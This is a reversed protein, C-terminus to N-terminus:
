SSWRRSLILTECWTLKDVCNVENCKTMIDQLQRRRWCRVGGRVCSHFQITAEGSDDTQECTAECPRLAVVENGPPDEQHRSCKRYVTSIFEAQQMQSFEVANTVSEDLESSSLLDKHGTIQRTPAEAEDDKEVFSRVYYAKKNVEGDHVSELLTM